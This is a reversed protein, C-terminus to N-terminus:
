TKFIEKVNCFISLGWISILEDQASEFLALYVTM